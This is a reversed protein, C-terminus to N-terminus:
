QAIAFDATSPSLNWLVRFDLGAGDSAMIDEFSPLPPEFRSSHVESSPQSGGVQHEPVNVLDDSPM